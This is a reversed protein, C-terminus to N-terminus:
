RVGDARTAPTTTGLQASAKGGAKLASERLAVPVAYV